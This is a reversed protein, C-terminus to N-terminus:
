ICENSIENLIKESILDSDFSKFSELSNRYLKNYDLTEFYTIANRLEFVSSEKMIVGNLGTKVLEPIGGIATSIVPVGVSLSEIIIGPYGEGAWSTPLLLTDYEILKGAVSDPSLVGRYYPYLDKSSYGEVPGFIDLTYESGLQNFTEILIDIGKDKTVRSIFVYRRRYLHDGRIVVGKKRVNPFWRANETFGSVWNKIALTEWYSLTADKIIKVLMKQKISSSKNFLDVFNGAFKRLVYPKHYLKSVVWVFPVIYLYDKFTGHLMVLDFGRSKGLVQKIILFYARIVSRYNSKNTDVVEFNLGRYSIQSLWEEFLVVIGGVGGGSNSKRPGVILFKKDTIM